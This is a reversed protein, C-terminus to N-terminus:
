FAFLFAAVEGQPGLLHLMVPGPQGYRALYLRAIPRLDFRLTREFWADCMEGLNDHQLVLTAQAPESERFPGSMFLKFPHEAGCGGFGVRLVLQEGELRWELLQFPALHLSDPPAATLIVPPVPPQPRLSVGFDAQLYSRPPQDPAPAVLVVELPNPTTVVPDVPGATPPPLYRVRYLGPLIVPVAWRGDARPRTVLLEGDPPRVELTGAPLPPEDPGRVGDGDVDSWILGGLRPLEPALGSEIRALFSFSVLGPVHFRWVKGGSTEGPALVGDEGLSASYDFGWATPLPVVPLSDPPLSDLPMAIVDANLVTVDPPEFAHVWVTAPAFLRRDSANRLAVTMEVAQEAADVVLDSGILEVVAPRAPMDPLDLKQLVFTGAGPDLDGRYGQGTRNPLDTGPGTSDSCGGLALAALAAVALAAAALTAPPLRRAPPFAAATRSRTFLHLM